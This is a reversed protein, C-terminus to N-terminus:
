ILIFKPSTNFVPSSTSMKTYIKTVHSKREGATCLLQHHLDEFGQVQWGFIGIAEGVGVNLDVQQRVPLLLILGLHLSKKLERM